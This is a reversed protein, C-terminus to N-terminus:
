LDIQLRYVRMLKGNIKKMEQEIGAKKLAQGIRKTNTRLSPFHKELGLKVDTSTM